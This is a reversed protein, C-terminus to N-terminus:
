IRKPDHVTRDSQVDGTNLTGVPEFMLVHVEEAAVPRHEVGKPVVFMEGPGLTVARDRLQIELTGAIVHFLEDEDRHQHWEFEGLLKAIKVHQGNLEAVIRPQWHEDFQRFKEELNIKDTM